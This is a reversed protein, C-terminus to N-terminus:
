FITQSYLIRLFVNPYLVTSIVPPQLFCVCHSVKHKHKGSIKPTALDLLILHNPCTVATSLNSQIITIFLVCLLYCGTSLLTLGYTTSSPVYCVMSLVKTFLCHLFTQNYGHTMRIFSPCVVITDTLVTIDSLLAIVSMFSASQVEQFLFTKQFGSPFAQMSSQIKAYNFSFEQIEANVLFNNCIAVLSRGQYSMNEMPFCRKLIISCLIPNLHFFHWLM